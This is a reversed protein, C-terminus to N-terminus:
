LDHAILDTMPSSILIILDNTCHSQSSSIPPASSSQTSFSFSIPLALALSIPKPHHRDLHCRRHQPAIKTAADVHRPHPAIERERERERKIRRRFHNSIFISIYVLKRTLPMINVTLHFQKGSFEIKWACGFVRHPTFNNGLITKRWIL